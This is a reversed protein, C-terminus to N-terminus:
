HGDYYNGPLKNAWSDKGEWSWEAKKCDGNYLFWGEDHELVLSGDGDWYLWVTLSFSPIYYKEARNITEEDKGFCGCCLTLPFLDKERNIPVVASQVLFEHTSYGWRSDKNLLVLILEGVFDPDSKEPEVKITFEM